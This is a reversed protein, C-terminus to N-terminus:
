WVNCIYEGGVGIKRADDAALIGKPTSLIGIGYGNKVPRVEDKKIYMRRSPKSVLSIDSIAGSGDAYKLIVDMYEVESKKMKKKKKEIDTVFGKEKLILAIQYKIKSFPISVREHRVAQANKIQAFM